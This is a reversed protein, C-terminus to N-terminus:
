NYNQQIRINRSSDTRSSSRKDNAVGGIRNRMEQTPCLMHKKCGNAATDVSLNKYQRTDNRWENDGNNIFNHYQKQQIPSNISKQSGTRQFEEHFIERHAEHRVGNNDTQKSSYENKYNNPSLYNSSERQPYIAM